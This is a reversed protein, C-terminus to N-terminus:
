KRNLMMVRFVRHGSKERSSPSSDSSASCAEVRTFCGVAEQRLRRREDQPRRKEGATKQTFGRYGHGAQGGTPGPQLWRVHQARYRQWVTEGSQRSRRCMLTPQWKSTWDHESDPKRPRSKLFSTEPTYRTGRLLLQVDTKNTRLPSRERKMRVRPAPRPCNTARPAISLTAKLRTSSPSHKERIRVGAGLWTVGHDKASIKRRNQDSATTPFQQKRRSNGWFLLPASMSPNNKQPCTTKCLM